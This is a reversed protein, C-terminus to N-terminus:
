PVLNRFFKEKASLAYLVAQTNTSSLFFHFYKTNWDIIDIRQVNKVRKWGAGEYFFGLPISDLKEICSARFRIWKPTEPNICRKLRSPASDADAPKPRFQISWLHIMDNIHLVGLNALFDEDERDGKHDESKWAGHVFAAIGDQYFPASVNADTSDPFLAISDVPIWGLPKKGPGAVLANYGPYSIKLAEVPKTV